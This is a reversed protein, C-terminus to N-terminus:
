EIKNYEIKGEKMKKNKCEVIFNGKSFKGTEWIDADCFIEHSLLVNSFVSPWELFSWQM